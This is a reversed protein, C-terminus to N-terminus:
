PRCSATKSENSRRLAEAHDLRQWYAGIMHSARRLTEIEDETWARDDTYQIFGLSGRLVGDVFVPVGVESQIGDERYRRAEHEPLGLHPDRGAGSALAEKTTPIESYLGEALNGGM